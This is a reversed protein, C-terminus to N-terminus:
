QKFFSSISVKVENESSPMGDEAIEAMNVLVEFSHYNMCSLEM